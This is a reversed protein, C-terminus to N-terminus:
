VSECIRGYSGRLPAMKPKVVPALPRVSISDKWASNATNVARAEQCLACLHTYPFCHIWFASCNVSPPMQERLLASGYVKKRYHGFVTGVIGFAIALLICQLIYFDSFFDMHLSCHPPLETGDPCLLEPAPRADPAAPRSTENSIIFEKMEQEQPDGFRNDNDAEPPGYDAHLQRAPTAVGNTNASLTWSGLADPITVNTANTSPCFCDPDWALPIRIFIYTMMICFITMSILFRTCMYIMVGRSTSDALGAKRLTMGFLLCPCWWGICCTEMDDFCGMLSTSPRQHVAIAAGSEEATSLLLKAETSTRHTGCPQEEQSPPDSASPASHAGM